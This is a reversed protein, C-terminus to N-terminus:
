PDKQLVCMPFDGPTGDQDNGGYGIAHKKLKYRILKNPDCDTASLPASPDNSQCDTLLQYRVPTYINHTSDSSSEDMQARTIKPPTVVFLYDFRLTGNTTDLTGQTVPFSSDKPPRAAAPTGTAPPAGLPCTNAWDLKGNGNCGYIADGNINSWNDTGSALIATGGGGGGKAINWCMATSLAVRAANGASSTTGTNSCDAFVFDAPAAAVAPNWAGPNCAVDGLKGLVGSTPFTRQALQARFLWLKAWHYGGPIPVSTDPCDETASTLVPSAAYGLPPIGGPSGPTPTTSFNGPYVYANVPLNFIGSKEKAVVFNYRDFGPGPGTATSYIIKSNAANAEISFLKFNLFNSYHTAAAPAYPNLEVDTDSQFIPCNWGPAPSGGSLAGSYFGLTRGWNTTYFDLPYSYKPNDSLFPDYLDKKDSHFLYYMTTIDRCQTRQVPIFSDASLPNFTSGANVSFKVTNSFADVANLHVSINVTAVDSPINVSPCRLLNSEHYTTDVEFSQSAGNSVFSFSCTCTSAGTAGGKADKATCYQGMGSNGDGILAITAGPDFTDKQARVVTLLGGSTNNFTGPPAATITTSSAGTGASRLFSNTCGATAFLLALATLRLSLQKATAICRDTKL